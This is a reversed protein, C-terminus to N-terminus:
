LNLNVINETMKGIKRDILDLVGSRRFSFIGEESVIVHDSLGM